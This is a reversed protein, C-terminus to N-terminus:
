SPLPSIGIAAVKPFNCSPAYIIIFEQPFAQGSRANPDKPPTRNSWLRWIDVGERAIEGLGTRPERRKFAEPRIIEQGTRRVELEAAVPRPDVLAERRAVVLRQDLFHVQGCLIRQARENLRQSLVRTELPLHVRQAGRRVNIEARADAVDVGDIVGANLQVM